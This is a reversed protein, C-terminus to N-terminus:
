LQLELAAAAAMLEAGLRHDAIALLRDVVHGADASQCDPRTCVMLNRVMDLFPDRTTLWGASIDCLMEGLERLKERDLPHVAENSM